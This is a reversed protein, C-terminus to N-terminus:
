FNIKKKRMSINLVLALVMFNSIISSGGASMLPLTIGSIPALGITMAINQYISFTLSAFTGICILKGLIDKSNMSIKLIRYLIIGYLVLLTGAGILGWEEGVVSFIFDTHAEPVYGGSVQTSNLYGKGVIKGSGIGIKSNILQYGTSQQFAEPNLFSTIRAMQYSHLINAKWIIFIGAIGAAFTGFIIKLKLGAIFLIASVISICIIAMGMEPQKLIMVLPILTYILIKFLNRPENVSGEMTSIKKSILIILAIKFFETPEIAPLPGLKLWSNSGNVSTDQIDTAILLTMGVWYFVSSYNSILNYDTLLLFYSILVAIIIYTIQTKLYFTDSSVRTASYINIVGFAAVALITIMLPLDIQRLLRIDIIWKKM